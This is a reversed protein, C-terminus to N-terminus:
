QRGTCHQKKQIQKTLFVTLEKYNTCKFAVSDLRVPTGTFFACTSGTFDIKYGRTAKYKVFPLSTSDIPGYNDVAIYYIDGANAIIKRSYEGLSTHDDPSTMNLGTAGQNYAPAAPSTNSRIPGPSMVNTCARGTGNYVEFNYNDTKLKPRIMFVLTGGTAIEVRLWHRYRIIPLNDTEIFQYYSNATVYSDACITIAGCIDQEPQVPTLFQPAQAKIQVPALLMLAPVFLCLLSFFLKM